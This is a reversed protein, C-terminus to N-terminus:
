KDGKRRAAMYFGIGTLGLIYGIGGLITQLDNKEKYSAIEKRLPQVERRVAKAILQEINATNAISSATKEIAKQGNPAPTNQKVGDPLEDTTVIVFAMHGAGLNAQFRHTIAQTPTFRFLGDENVQTQGILAGQDNFVEVVTGTKAMEGNSLGIEGEIDAGDTWASAVIKHAFAPQTFCLLALIFLLKPM